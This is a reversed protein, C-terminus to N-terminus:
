IDRTQEPSFDAYSVGMTAKKVCHKLIPYLIFM